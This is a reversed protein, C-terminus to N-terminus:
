RAGRGGGRTAGGRGDPDVQRGNELGEDWYLRVEAVSVEMHDSDKKAKKAERDKARERIIEALDEWNESEDGDAGEPENMEEDDPRKLENAGSGSAGAGDDMEADAKKVEEAEAGVESKVGKKAEKKRRKAEMKEEYEARRTEANRLRADDKMLM